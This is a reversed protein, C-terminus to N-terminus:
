NNLINVINDNIYISGSFETILVNAYFKGKEKDQPNSLLALEYLVEQVYVGKPYNNYYEEYEILAKQNEELRLSTSAKYFIIHEKLINGECYSYAKDFSSKANSYEGQNFYWQGYEYFKSVGQTKMLNIAQHYIEIDNNSISDEKLNKLEVYLGDLDNNDILTKIKGSDFPVINSDEKVTEAPAVNSNDIEEEQIDNNETNIKDEAIEESIVVSNEEKSKLLISYGGAAIGLILVLITITILVIKSSNQSELYIGDEKLEKKIIKATVANKDISLAKEVYEKARYLDGKKQYCMAIGTNVKITNFDSEACKEFLELAKDIKLQKLAQEGQRYLDIREKDNEADKIYNAAIDDNNLEKNIKWATIAENLNGKQYLLLGKFNLVVPNHLGEMLIEECIDLAKNINGKEYNGMAKAYYRNAKRNM